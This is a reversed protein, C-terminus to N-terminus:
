GMLRALRSASVPLNSASSTSRDSSPIQMQIKHTKEMIPRSLVTDFAERPSSEGTMYVYYHENQTGGCRLTMSYVHKSYAVVFRTWKCFFVSSLISRM